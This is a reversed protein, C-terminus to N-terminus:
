APSEQERAMSNRRTKFGYGTLFAPPALALALFALEGPPDAIATAFYFVTILLPIANMGLVLRWSYFPNRAAAVGLWGCLAASVMAGVLFALSGSAASRSLAMVVLLSPLGAIAVFVPALMMGAGFSGAGILSGGVKSEADEM